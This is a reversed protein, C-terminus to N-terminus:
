LPQPTASQLTRAIWEAHPIGSERLAKIERDVDYEVRRISPIGDEILVYSARTDGDYPMGVSGTNVVTRNATKRIYPHHIHGYVVLSHALPTFAQDLEDDQAGKAPAKWVTEPSAHVLAFDEHLVSKPLQRLHEIGSEGLRDRTWSAMEHITDFLQGTFRDISSPNFLIEDTNGYVGPWGLIQIHDMVYVPSSGADTLDGGHVVLDPSVDRLDRLVADFATLNGHVDTVIAVRM